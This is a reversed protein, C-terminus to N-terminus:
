QQAGKKLFKSMSKQFEVTALNNIMDSNIPAGNVTDAVDNGLVGQTINRVLESANALTVVTQESQQLKM